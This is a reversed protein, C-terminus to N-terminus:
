GILLLPLTAQLIAGRGFEEIIDSTAVRNKEWYLCWGWMFIGMVVARILALWPHAYAIPLLAVGIFFGHMGYKDEGKQPPFDDWYTTTAAWILVYSLVYLWSISHYFMAMWIITLSTCVLERMWSQVAWSPYWPFYLEMSEKSAGGVRYFFASLVTFIITIILHLEPNMKIIM